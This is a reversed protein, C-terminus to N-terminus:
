FNFFIKKIYLAHRSGSSYNSNAISVGNDSLINHWVHGKKQGKCQSVKSLIFTLNMGLSHSIRSFHEALYTSPFRFQEM